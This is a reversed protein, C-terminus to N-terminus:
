SRGSGWSAAPPRIPRQRRVPRLAREVLESAKRKAPRKGNAVATPKQLLSWGDDGQRAPHWRWCPRLLPPVTPRHSNGFHVSELVFRRESAGTAGGGAEGGAAAEGYYIEKVCVQPPPPSRRFFLADGDQACVHLRAGLGRRAKLGSPGASRPTCSRAPGECPTHPRTPRRGRAPGVAADGVLQGAQWWGEQYWTEALSGVCLQDRFNERPPPPPPRLRSRPHWERLRGDPQAVVTLPPPSQFLLCHGFSRRV